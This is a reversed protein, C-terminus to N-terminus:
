GREKGTGPHGGGVRVVGGVPALVRGEETAAPPRGGAAGNAVDGDRLREDLRCAVHAEGEEHEGDEDDGDDGDCVLRRVGPELGGGGDGGREGADEGVGGEEDGVVREEGGALIEVGGGGDWGRHPIFIVRSRGDAGGGGRGRAVPGAVRVQSGSERRPSHKARASRPPRRAHPLHPTRYRSAHPLRPPQRAAPPERLRSLRCIPRLLQLSKGRL